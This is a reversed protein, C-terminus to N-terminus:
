TNNMNLISIHMLRPTKKKKKFVQQEKLNLLPAKASTSKTVIKNELVPGAFKCLPQNELLPAQPSGQETGERFRTTLHKIIFQQSLAFWPYHFGEDAIIRTDELQM